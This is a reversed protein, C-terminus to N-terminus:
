SPRYANTAQSCIPAQLCLIIVSAPTKFLLARLFKVLSPLSSKRVLNSFELDVAKSSFPSRTLTNNFSLSRAREVSKPATRTPLVSRAVATALTILNNTVAAVFLRKKELDVAM